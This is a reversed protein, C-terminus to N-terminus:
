WTVKACLDFEHFTLTAIASGTAATQVMDTLEQRDNDILEIV